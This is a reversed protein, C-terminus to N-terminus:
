IPFLTKLKIEPSKPIKQIRKYKEKLKRSCVWYMPKLIWIRIVSNLPGSGGFYMNEWKTKVWTWTSLKM